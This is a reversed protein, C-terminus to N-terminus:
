HAKEGSGDDPTALGRPEHQTNEDTDVSPRGDDSGVRRERADQIVETKVKKHLGANVAAVVAAAEAVAMERKSRERGAASGTLFSGAERGDKATTVATVMAEAALTGITQGLLDATTTGAAAAVVALAAAGRPPVSPVLCLPAIAAVLKDKVEASAFSAADAADRWKQAAVAVVLTPEGIPVPGLRLSLAIRSVNWKRRVLGAVRSLAPVVLGGHSALSEGLPHQGKVNESFSTLVCLEPGRGTNKTTLARTVADISLARTTATVMDTTDDDDAKEDVFGDLANEEAGRAVTNPSLPSARGAVAVASPTLSDAMGDLMAALAAEEGECLKERAADKAAAAAVAAAPGGVIGDLARAIAAAGGAEGGRGVVAAAAAAVAAAAAAGDFEFASGPTGKSKTVAAAAAAAVAAASSVATPFPSQANLAAKQAATTPGGGGNTL